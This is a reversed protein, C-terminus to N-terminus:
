QAALNKIYKELSEVNAGSFEDVKEMNKFFMFTPMCSIGYREAVDIVEDVDVKLFTVNTYSASFEVLKPGIMQCPGCWLAHFDVVVLSDGAQALAVDFEQSSNIVQVRSTATAM